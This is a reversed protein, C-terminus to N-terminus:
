QVENNVWIKMLVQNKEAVKSYFTNLVLWLHPFKDLEELLDGPSMKPLTLILNNANVEIGIIIILRERFLQKHTEHPIGLKDWLSLLKVQNTPM